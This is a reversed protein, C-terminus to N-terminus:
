NQILNCAMDSNLSYGYDNSTFRQHLFSHMSRCAGRVQIKNVEFFSEVTHM